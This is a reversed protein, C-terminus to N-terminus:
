PGDHRENFLIHSGAIRVEVHQAQRDVAGVRVAVIFKSGIVNIEDKNDAPIM